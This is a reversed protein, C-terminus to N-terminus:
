PHPTSVRRLILTTTKESLFGGNALAFLKAETMGGRDAGGWTIAGRAGMRNERSGGVGEGREKEAEGDGVWGRVKEAEGGGVGLVREWWVRKEVGEWGVGRATLESSNEVRPPM